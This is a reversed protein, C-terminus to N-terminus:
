LKKLPLVESEIDDGIIRVETGRIKDNIIYSLEPKNKFNTAM